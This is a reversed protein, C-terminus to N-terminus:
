HFTKHFRLSRAEIGESFKLRHEIASHCVKIKLALKIIFVWNTM